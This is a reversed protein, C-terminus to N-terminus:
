KYEKNLKDIMEILVMKDFPEKITKAVIKCAELESRVNEDRTGNELSMLVYEILYSKAKDETDNM